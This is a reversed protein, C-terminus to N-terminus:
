PSSRQPISQRSTLRLEQLPVCYMRRIRDFLDPRVVLDTGERELPEAFTAYPARARWTRLVIGPDGSTTTWMLSGGFTAPSLSLYSLFEPPPVLVHSAGLWDATSCLGVIPGLPLVPPLRIPPPATCWWDNADGDGFPLADLPIAAGPPLGVAGAFTTLEEAPGSYPRGPDDPAYRREVLALRVWGEHPPDDGAVTPLSGIGDMMSGPDPWAPRATLSNTMALRLHLNPLTRRLVEDDVGEHWQASALLHARLGCLAEHLAVQLLEVEWLLTPTPPYSRGDRGHALRYRLRARDHYTDGSWWGQLRRAVLEPLAPWLSELDSLVGGSDPRLLRERQEPKLPEVSESGGEVRVPVGVIPRDGTRDLLAAAGQEVGWIGCRTYRALLDTLSTTVTFPSREAHRLADLVLLLSTVPTSRTMWWRLSTAVAGPHYEIARVVGALADTKQRLRPDSLRSLLLAILGEEVSWEDKTGGIGRDEGLRAFWGGRNALPLRHAVVRYAEHWALEAEDPQGWAALREILHRSTGVNYASRRLAYAIEEAVVQRAVTAELRIAEDMLHAQKRDGMQLWGGGGRTGVYAFAYAMAALPGHGAAELTAALRGLPHERGSLGLDVDRAFFRLLQKAEDERGADLFETLHYSLALVVDNWADPDDWRLGVAARRLGALLDVTTPSPKFPAERLLADLPTIRSPRREDHRRGSPHAGSATIQPVPLGRHRAVAMVRDAAEGNHHRGDGAVQGALRRLAWVARSRDAEILRLIPALRLEAVKDGGGQHEVECTLTALLDDVLGPDATGSVQEAVDHLAQEVPWDGTGDEQQMTRALVQMGAVADVSLVSRLWENPAHNTSRGDTHAVVAATLPQAKALANLAAEVSVASLAPASDIVDYVTTDKRWGYAALYVSASEWAEHAGTKDDIAYRCRALRMAYDAHTPYYTGTSELQAMHHEVSERVLHGGVADSVYPRLVDLLMGTTLPGGDERDLRSGTGESVSALADLAARWGDESRLLSLGWAITESIVNHIPYLDCPRPKGEFPRVDQRLTTFAEIPERPTEASLTETRALEIVFRLWCRYWGSGSVRDIEAALVANGDPQQAFVRVSAVWERVGRADRLHEDPGVAISCESPDISIDTLIGPAGHAMCAAVLEVTDASNVARVSALSADDYDGRRSCEDAIGIRLVTAATPLPEAERRTRDEVRRAVREVLEPGCMRALRSAVRRLFLPKFDSGSEALYRLLHKLIQWREGLALRGHIVHLSQLESATLTGDPDFQDGRVSTEAAIDPIALYERWPATGGADDILSCALLGDSSSATPRGDFLLREALSSAGFLDIYTAWYDAWDNQTEDFCTYASRHLEICRVLDPWRRETAAVDAALTLNRHIASLPHAHAVSDSVFSVTIRELVSTARHARRLAALLFRYAKADRFFGRQDLWDIVPALADAPSRGARELEDVMFRRFSEHFIRVGGQGAVSTLIPSLHALAKEVWGELLAPTIQRLDSETVGFDIVGLLDAIAQAHASASRYIHTYYVAIDGNIEPVESLWDVPSAITGSHLGTVLGRALYRVCLPNGDARETILRHLAAVVDANTVAANSLADLLGHRNALAVVDSESWRPVEHQLLRASWQSRLPDLHPGPQSGVIVAVGPPIALTALREVINTDHDSLDASDARVRAIHDLGDVILVVPADSLAAKALMAELEAIGAAYRAGGAGELEPRVDVLEAILNGFFVDAKVRRDVVDDGPELYCYHRAVIAGAADLEEALRTLEWSKGAGPPGVVLQHTGAVAVQQLSRRFAPRDHFLAPTVPFAQAVRGYDVRIQLHNEIDQPTLSAEETRALTALSIALAAVDSSDRGHNPYRGIGVRESLETILASELPGPAALETSALPLALEVIFRECFGVLEPRGFEADTSVYAELPKWIPHGDVPWLRNADLRFHQAPWGILTPEAPVPILLQSLPDTDTPVTWTACLRYEQAANSARVYTLVLRDIRLSSDKQTFDGEAIARTADLSSKFQRRVTRAGARVDLDDIRDDEVQKRDVIVRDYREVLARVLVFATAIDQYRYGSHAPRLNGHRGTMMGM